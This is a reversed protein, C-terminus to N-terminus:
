DNTGRYAAKIPSYKDAIARLSGAVVTADTTTIEHVTEWYTEDSYMEGGQPHPIPKRQEEQIIIKVRAM